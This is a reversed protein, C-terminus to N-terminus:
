AFAEGLPSGEAFPMPFGMLRAVTPAIANQECNRDFVRGRDIGPGVVLAFIRHASATNFHHQFPVALFPNSDRGCDPVVVFVTRDRYFPDAQATEWLRKLGEDVIAVGRTYFSSNGWHVYDPDCFNVMMLRPQLHRMAWTALETLLRDGRPNVLGTRGYYGAWRDWFRDLAPTSSPDKGLREPHFELTRNGKADAHETVTRFAGRRDQSELEFLTKLIEQRAEGKANAADEALDRRRVYLKYRYLSLTASRYNMGFGLHKSFSYFEEDLRDESNVILAQEPPLDFQRRLAEFLTPVKAEFRAGLFQDDVDHYRDYKGTLINLTGEGHSTNLGPQSAIEMRPFLVGRPALEKLLFPSYTEHSAITEQRRVGGGFRVVVVNPGDYTRRPPTPEPGAAPGAGTAALGAAAGAGALFARRNM